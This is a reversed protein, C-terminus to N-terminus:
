RDYWACSTRWAARTRCCNVTGDRMATDGSSYPSGLCNGKQKDILRLDGGPYPQGDYKTLIPKEDFLSDSEAAHQFLCFVSERPRTPHPGATM